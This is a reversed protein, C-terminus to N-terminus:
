TGRQTENEEVEEMEEEVEEEVNIAAPKEAVKMAMESLLDVQDLWHAIGLVQVLPIVQKYIFELFEEDESFWKRIQSLIALMEREESGICAGERYFSHKSPLYSALLRAAKYIAEVDEVASM